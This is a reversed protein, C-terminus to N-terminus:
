AETENCRGNRCAKGATGQHESARRRLGGVVDLDVRGLGDAVQELAVQVQGAVLVALVDGFVLQLVHDLGDTLLDGLQGGGFAIEHGLRGCLHFARGVPAHHV